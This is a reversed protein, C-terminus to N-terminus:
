RISSVGVVIFIITRKSFPTIPEKMTGKLYTLDEKIFVLTVAFADDSLFVVVVLVISSLCISSLSYYRILKIPSSSSSRQHSMSIGENTANTAVIHTQIV